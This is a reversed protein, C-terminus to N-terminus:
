ESDRRSPQAEWGIELPSGSCKSCFVLKPWTYERDQEKLWEGFSTVLSMKCWNGLSDARTEGCYIWVTGAGSCVWCWDAQWDGVGIKGQNMFLVGLCKFEEVRSMVEKRVWVLWALRKRALSWVTTKFKSVKIRMRAAGCWVPFQINSPLLQTPKHCWSVKVFCQFTNMSVTSGCKSIEEFQSAKSSHLFHMKINQIMSKHVGLFNISRWLLISVLPGKLQQRKKNYISTYKFGLASFLVFCFWFFLFCTVWVFCYFLFKLCTNFGAPTFCLFALSM